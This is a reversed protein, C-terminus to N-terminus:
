PTRSCYVRPTCSGTGACTYSVRLYRNVTGSVYKRESTTTTATVTTFTILDAWSSNDTSHQIKVIVTNNHTNTPIHLNAILGTASSASNDISTSNSTATVTARNLLIGASAGSGVSSTAATQAYSGQMNASFSVADGISASLEYSTNLGAFLWAPNGDTTGFSTSVPTEAGALFITNMLADSGTTATNDFLGSMAITCNKMGVIFEKASDGFTSTEATDQDFSITIDRLYQGLNFKGVQVEANKGHSYAM